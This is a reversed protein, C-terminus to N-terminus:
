SWRSPARPQQPIRNGTHASRELLYRPIPERHFRDGALVTPLLLQRALHIPNSPLRSIIKSWSARLPRIPADSIAAIKPRFSYMVGNSTHITLVPRLGWKSPLSCVRRPWLCSRCINSHIASSKPLPIKVLQGLKACLPPNAVAVGSPIAVVVRLITIGIVTKPSKDAIGSASSHSAFDVRARTLHM